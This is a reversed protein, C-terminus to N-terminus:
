PPLSWNPKPKDGAAVLRMILIEDDARTKEWRPVPVLVMNLTLPTLLSTQHHYKPTSLWGLDPESRFNFSCLTRMFRSLFAGFVKRRKM